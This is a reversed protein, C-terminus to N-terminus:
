NLILEVEKLGRNHLVHVWKLSYHNDASINEWNKLNVYRDFLILKSYPNKVEKIVKEIEQQKLFLEAIDQRLEEEADLINATFDGIFDVKTNTQVRANTQLGGAVSERMDNLQQIRTEKARVLGYLTFTQSLYEKANMKVGGQYIFWGLANHIKKFSCNKYYYIATLSLIRYVKGM